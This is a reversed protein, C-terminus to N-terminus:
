ARGVVKVHLQHTEAVHNFHQFRFGQLFFYALPQLVSYFHVSLFDKSLLTLRLYYINTSNLFKCRLLIVLYKIWISSLYKYIM